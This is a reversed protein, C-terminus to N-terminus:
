QDPYATVFRPRDDGADIIWVTNIVAQRQAPGAITARIEYKTGFDSRRGPLTEHNLAVELLVSQLVQWDAARFGLANFFAAKGRSRPNVASLLYDRVKEPAVIAREAGPLKM